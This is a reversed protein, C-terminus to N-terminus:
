IGEDATSANMRTKGDPGFRCGTQCGWKIVGSTDKPGRIPPDPCMSPFNVNCTVATCGIPSGIPFSGQYSPDDYSCDSQVGYPNRKSPCCYCQCQ